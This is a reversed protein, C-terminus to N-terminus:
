RMAGAVMFPYAGADNSRPPRTRAWPRNVYPRTLTTRTAPWVCAARRVRVARRRSHPVRSNRSFKFRRYHGSIYASYTTADSTQPAILLLVESAGFCTCHSLIQVFQPPYPHGTSHQLQTAVRPPTDPALAFARLLKSVTRNVVSDPHANTPFFIWFIRRSHDACCRRALDLLRWGSKSM